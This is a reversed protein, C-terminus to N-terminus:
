VARNKTFRHAKATDTLGPACEESNIRGYIIMEDDNMRAGSVLLYSIEQQM